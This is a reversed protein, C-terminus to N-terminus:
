LGALSLMFLVVLMLVVSRWILRFICHLAAAGSKDGIGLEPRELMGGSQTVPLGLRVGSAGAASALLIGAEGDMWGSAQARWCYVTDEFNGVVAFTAATLRIPLWELRRCMQRAFVDFRAEGLTTATADGGWQGQWRSRMALGLRYLLVGSAGGLGLLSFLVFWVIVGFLHRHLGLLVTESALRAIEEGDIEPLRHRRLQVLQERADTLREDRLALQIAPLAHSYRGFGLGLYLSLVNFLLSLFPSVWHLMWYLAVVVALLPLVALWWAIRGHVYVGSNFRQQFYDVYGALMHSLSRSDALPKLQELLLAAILAFLSM